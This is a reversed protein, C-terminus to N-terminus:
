FPFGLPYLVSKPLVLRFAVEFLLYVTLPTIIGAAVIGWWKYKGLYWAFFAMYAATSQSYEFIGTRNGSRRMQRDSPPVPHTAPRM